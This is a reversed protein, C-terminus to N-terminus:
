AAEREAPADWYRVVRSKVGCRTIECEVLNGGIALGPPFTGVPTEFPEARQVEAIALMDEPTASGRALVAQVADTANASSVWCSFETATFAPTNPVGEDTVIAFMRVTETEFCWGAVLMRVLCDPREAKVQRAANECCALLDVLGPLFCCEIQRGIKEVLHEPLLGITTMNVAAPFLRVEMIKSVYGAREKTAFDWAVTDSWLLARDGMALGNMLTM